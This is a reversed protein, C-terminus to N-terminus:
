RWEIANELSKFTKPRSRLFSQMSNLAEMATGACLSGLSLSHVVVHLMCVVYLMCALAQVWTISM